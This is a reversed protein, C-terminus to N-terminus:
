HLPNLATKISFKQGDSTIEIAGHTDTRYLTAGQEKYRQLIIPNPFNYRNNEGVCIIIISPNVASLFEESSSSLSGHHPSKLINSKILKINELIDQEAELGIDGTLLFSTRGYSLRLVMSLENENSSFPLRSDKPHLIDITTGNILHSSTRFM